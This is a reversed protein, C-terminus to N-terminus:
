YVSVYASAGACVYVCCYGCRRERFGETVILLIRSPIDCVRMCLCMHMCMMMMCMYVCGVLCISSLWAIGGGMAGVVKGSRAAQSCNALSCFVAGQRIASQRLQALAELVVAKLRKKICRFLGTLHYRYYRDNIWQIACKGFSKFQENM